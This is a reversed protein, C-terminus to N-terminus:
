PPPADTGDGAGKQRRYDGEIAQLATSTVRGERFSQRAFDPHYIPHPCIGSGRACPCDDLSAEHCAICVNM